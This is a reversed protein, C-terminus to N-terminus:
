KMILLFYRKGINKIKKLNQILFYSKESNIYNIYSTPSDTSNIGQVLSSYITIIKSAVLSATCADAVLHHANVIFGGSNDKFRFLQIKFLQSDVLSFPISAIKNELLLLDDYSNLLIIPDSDLIYDNSFYQKYEQKDNLTLRIRFSDNEKLFIHIANILKEFNIKEKILVTGCINNVTTNKYFQETYLIAKQPSTLNYLNKGM